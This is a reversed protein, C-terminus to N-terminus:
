AKTKLVFPQRIYLENRAKATETIDRSLEIMTKVCWDIRDADHNAISYDLLDKVSGLTATMLKISQTLDIEM